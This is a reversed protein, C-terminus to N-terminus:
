FRGISDQGIVIQMDSEELSVQPVVRIDCRLTKALRQTTYSGRKDETIQIFTKAVGTEQTNSTKIVDGGINEILRAINLAIGPTDTGNLVEIKLKEAAVLDDTFIKHAFSALGSEEPGFGHSGDPLLIDSLLGESALDTYFVKDVRVSRLGWWLRVVEFKTLNTEFNTQWDKSVLIRPLQGISSFKKVDEAVKDKSLSSWSKNHVIVFGDIPAQVFKSLTDVLLINGRPPNELNGLDRVAGIRNWGYGYPVDSQTERDVTIVDVRKNKPDFVGVAMPSTDFVLSLKAKGDWTGGKILDSSVQGALPKKFFQGLSVFHLFTNLIFFAVLLLGLFTLFSQLKARAGVRHWTKLQGTM